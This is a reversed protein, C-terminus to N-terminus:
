TRASNRSLFGLHHACHIRQFERWQEPTLHGSFPSDHMEGVHSGSRETVQKFREVAAAEDGGPAPLPKQPTPVGAKMRQQSLIRRLVLRGFLVKFLWPVRFTPGELAARMFYTLHDCVRALDWRGVKEYAGRHLRDVEARVEAYNNFQLRRPKM